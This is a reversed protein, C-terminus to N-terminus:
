KNDQFQPVVEDIFLQLSKKKAEFPLTNDTWFSYEDVGMEEWRKLRAVIEDPTGILMNKRLSEESFLPNDSVEEESVPPLYGQSPVQDNKFWSQFYRFFRNIADTGTKWGEPDSADHVYAHHLAMLKPQHSSDTHRACARKFKHTLDEVEEDGKMLATVMVNCGNSIAFEHSSESRAAIWMPPLSQVPSPVSTSAPFKYIDGNCAYDGHWLERIAPVIEQLHQGGDMSKMGPKVRDFEFQYAGRAIGFELRGNSIVDLLAAEGALRVPDWFPAIFTGSGLRITPVKAALYALQQLPSPSATYRMGYHEGIWIKEFGGAEAMQALECMEEFLTRYSKDGYSEMHMFLSFKM